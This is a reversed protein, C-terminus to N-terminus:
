RYIRALLAPPVKLASLLAVGARRNRFQTSGLWARSRLMVLHRRGIRRAIDVDEFAPLARYGGVKLYLHRSILLGQDGGPLGFIAFRLAAATENWWARRGLSELGARFVAAQPRALDGHEIFAQAEQQWGQELATEPHLFLLWDSKAADAGEALRAARASDARIVHAGTADAIFLTDDSSGGDAVIVERVIGDVAAPVLSDFCRALQAQSNLTPVIVSIM